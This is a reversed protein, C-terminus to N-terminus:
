SAPRQGSANIFTMGIAAFAAISSLWWSSSISFNFGIFCALLAFTSYLWIRPGARTVHNDALILIRAVLLFSAVAGLLGYELWVQLIGNHPHVPIAEGLRGFKPDALIGQEDTGLRKSAGAGWGLLPKETIKDITFDWIHMRYVISIASSSSRSLEASIDKPSIGSLSIWVPMLFSIALLAITIRIRFRGLLHYIGGLMLALVTGYAATRSGIQYAAIIAHAAICLALVTHGHNQLYIGLILTLIVLITAASKFWFFGYIALVPPHTVGSLDYGFLLTSLAGHLLADSLLWATALTVSCILALFVYTRDADALRSQMPILVAAITAIGALKALSRLSGLLFDTGISAILVACLYAGVAAAIWKDVTGIAPLQRDRWAIVLVALTITIIIPVLARVSFLPVVPIIMCLLVYCIGLPSPAHAPWKFLQM